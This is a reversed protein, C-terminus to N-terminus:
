SLPSAGAAGSLLPRVIDAIRRSGREDLLLSHPLDVQRVEVEDALRRWGLAPDTVPENGRIVFLRGPYHEIDHRALAELNGALTDRLVAFKEIPYSVDVLGAEVAQRHLDPLTLTRGRPIRESGNDLLTRALRDTAEAVSDSPQGAMSADADVIIILPAQGTRQRIIRAIEVSVVGGFSFGLIRFPGDPTLSMMADAAARAIESIDRHPRGGALGTAQLGYLAQEAGIAAALAFYRIVSGGIPHACYLPVSGAAVQLAVLIGADAAPAIDGRLTFAIGAITPARVVDALSIRVGFRSRIRATLTIVQLSNLGATFLNEDVGIDFRGLIDRVM